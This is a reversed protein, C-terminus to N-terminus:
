SNMRYKRQLLTPVAMTAAPRCSGCTDSAMARSATVSRVHEGAAAARALAKGLRRELLDRMAAALVPPRLPSAWWGAGARGWLPRRAAAVRERGGARGGGHSGAGRQVVRTRARPRDGRDLGGLLVDRRLERGSSPEPPEISPLRSPTSAIRPSSRESSMCSRRPTRARSGARVGRPDGRDAQQARHPRERPLPAPRSLPSRTASRSATPFRACAPEARPIPIRSSSSWARGPRPLLGGPSTGLAAGFARV